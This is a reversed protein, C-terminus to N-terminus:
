PHVLALTHQAIMVDEDKLIVRVSVRSDATSIASGIQFM